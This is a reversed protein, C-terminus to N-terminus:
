QLCPPTFRVLTLTVLGHTRVMGWIKVAPSFNRRNVAIMVGTLVVCMYPSGLLLMTAAEIEEFAQM